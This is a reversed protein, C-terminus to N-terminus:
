ATRKFHNEDITSYVHGESTLYHLANRLQDETVRGRLDAFIQDIKVGRDTTCNGLVDLIAAQEPSFNSDMQGYDMGGGVAAGSHGLYTSSNTYSDQNWASQQAGKVPTNFQMAGGSSAAQLPGKTSVCHVYIAELFHHTLENFDEIPTVAFCSLSVKGQFTRLSGVARVYIGDSYAVLLLTLSETSM